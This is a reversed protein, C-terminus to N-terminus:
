HEVTTSMIEMDHKDERMISTMSIKLNPLLLLSNIFHGSFYLYFIKSSREQQLKKEGWTNMNCSESISTKCMVM